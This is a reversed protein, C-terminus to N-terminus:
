KQLNWHLNFSLYFKSISGYPLDKIYLVICSIDPISNGNQSLPNLVQCLTCSSAPEIGLRFRHTLSGSNGWAAAYTISTAQICHHQPQPTLWCSCSLNLGQGPFKWIGWHPHLFSFLFFSIDHFIAYM